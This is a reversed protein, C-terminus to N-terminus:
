PVSSSVRSSLELRYVARRESIAVLMVLVVQGRQNQVTALACDLCPAAHFVGLRHLKRVNM